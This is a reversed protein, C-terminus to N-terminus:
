DRFLLQAKELDALTDIGVPAHPTVVMRVPIGNELMRLNELKEIAEMRSQPLTAFFKLTDKRFAYIGIHKYYTIKKEQDRPYPIVSRSFLMANSQKDVVVKVQNPDEIDKWEELTHMLSAVKIEESDPQEFVQLLAALSEKQTFPEDGQVNVVIDTDPLFDIAEAIRDTGCEHQKQSMVVKGGNKKIEDFILPHDCVVAVEDFLGTACVAEYTRLIVTKSGLTLLM